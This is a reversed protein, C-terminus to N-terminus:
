LTGTRLPGHQNLYETITGSNITRRNRLEHRANFVEDFHNTIFFLDAENDEPNFPNILDRTDQMIWLALLVEKYHPYTHSVPNCSTQTDFFLTWAIDGPVGHYGDSALAFLLKSSNILQRYGNTLYDDPGGKAPPMMLSLIHKVSLLHEDPIDSELFCLSEEFLLPHRDSFWLLTETIATVYKSNSPGLKYQPDTILTEPYDTTSLEPADAPETGDANLLRVNIRGDPDMKRVHRTSTTM